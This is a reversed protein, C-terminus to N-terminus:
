RSLCGTEPHARAQADWYARTPDRESSSSPSDRLLRAAVFLPAGAQDQRTKAASCSREAARRNRIAGIRRVLGLGQQSAGDTAREGTFVRLLQNM